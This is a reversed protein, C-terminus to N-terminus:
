GGLNAALFQNRFKGRPDYRAVLQTFEVCKEYRQRLDGPPITFLKGWHPRAGFPALEREIMPLVKSVSAWDQKWTFHIALSPRKYCPSMWLDDGDITRLETIMLHPSVQDRLREVAVIADVANRRPVFYESQLEQGSSPTFGMRFHPLREYWPGPVGMQETCNEASLEAIPHVNTTAPRAGYFDTSVAPAMGKEIRRKIWVESIRERQWNTFLSVSYGASVIEEFHERVQAMPLDLFVDQRMTFTPQLALTIRTVVGLAGLHVVAAPFTTTDKDRAFSVVDGGATVMELAAVATSLNGNTVGSGHTGTACAGAVSIHPLSALNHLAFGQQDLYPCLRGYTIGPEITVTRAARDLQVVQTMELLSLFDDASDAIGNFCHRTGLVKFREHARVFEQIQALSRASTLRRTSYPYNGAWNSLLQRPPETAQMRAIMGSIASAGVAGACREIFHRRSHHMDAPGEERVTPGIM